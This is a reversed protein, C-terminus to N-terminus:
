IENEYDEILKKMDIEVVTKKELNVAYTSLYDFCCDAIMYTYKNILSQKENKFFYSVGQEGDNKEAYKGIGGNLPYVKYVLVYFKLYDIDKM